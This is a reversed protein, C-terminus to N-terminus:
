KQRELATLRQQLVDARHRADIAFLLGAAALLLSAITALWFMRRGLVVLGFGTKDRKDRLSAKLLPRANRDCAKETEALWPEDFQHLIHYSM